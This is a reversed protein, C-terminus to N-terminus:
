RVSLVRVSRKDVVIEGVIQGNEGDIVPSGHQELSIGLSADVTWGDGKAPAIQHSEIPIWRSPVDGVVWLRTPAVTTDIKAAIRELPWKPADTTFDRIRYRSIRVTAESDPKDRNPNSEFLAIQEPTIELGAAEWRVSGEIAKMPSEFLDSPGIVSGDSLMLIWGNLSQNQRFGFLREQWQKSFRIPSLAVDMGKPLVAGYLIRPRWELWSKEAKSALEFRRGTKAPETPPDPTAFEIGGIAITSLSEADVDVGSLGVEIRFGSRNWFRSNERVLSRYDAEITARVQVWRSDASLGVSQICGVELGRYIVPANVQLGHRDNAELVLELAGVAISPQPPQDLGQFFYSPKSSIPGPEVAIYRGSLITELSRVGQVSAIPREIWFRSGECALASALENLRILVEVNGLSKDLQVREIVGVEIGRHMLRNEAKLGHGDRFQVSIKIGRTYWSWGALGIALALCFATLLWLQSIPKRPEQSSEIPRAISDSVRDPTPVSM